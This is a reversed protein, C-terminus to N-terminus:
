NIEFQKKARALDDADDIECWMTEPVSVVKVDFEQLYILQGLVKEYYSDKGINEVYWKILPMYKNKIFDKKFKYM